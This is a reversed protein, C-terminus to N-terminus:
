LGLMECNKAFLLPMTSSRQWEFEYLIASEIYLVIDFGLHILGKTCISITRKVREARMNKNTKEKKKFPLSELSPFAQTERVELM